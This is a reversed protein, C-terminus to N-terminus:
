WLESFTPAGTNQDALKDSNGTIGIVEGDTYNGSSRSNIQYTTSTRKAVVICTKGSTQGTIIDGNAWDVNPSINITLLEIPIDAYNSLSTTSNGTGDFCYTKTPTGTGFGCNWLDPAIGQTGAFSSRYFCFSFDVSQNLFRTSQYGNEYFINAVLQLSSCNLFTKYFSTCSTNYKFLAGPITALSTCGRFTEYFGSTGVSTNYRFLDTPISTIHTCNYFTANFSSNAANINYKFLDTPITTLSVNNCDYFTYQFACYAVGTNYDFLHAPIATLGTCEMFTGDFGHSTLSTMNKFLDAPITALSTCNDFTWLFGDSLIGTGSKTIGGSAISILNTCGHFGHALYKFGNFIGTEGWNLVKTIKLKDGTNNFSWGEMTGTINVDYTGNNAYTHIRDADNYTTITSTATGDGWEVICDYSLSGEARTNILPLTVTRATADGSVVWETKFGPVSPAVTNKTVVITVGQSFCVTISLIILIALYLFKM